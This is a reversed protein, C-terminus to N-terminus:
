IWEVQLWLFVCWIYKIPETLFRITEIFRQDEVSKAIHRYMLSWEKNELRGYIEFNEDTYIELRYPYVHFLYRENLM